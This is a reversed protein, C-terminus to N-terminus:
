LWKESPWKAGQHNETWRQWALFSILTPFFLTQFNTSANLYTELLVQLVIDLCRITSNMAWRERCPRSTPFFFSLDLTPKPFLSSHGESFRSDSEKRVHYISVLLIFKRELSVYKVPHELFIRGTSSKTSKKTLCPIDARKKSSLPPHNYQIFESLRRGYNMILVQM